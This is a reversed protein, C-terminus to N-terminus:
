LRLMYAQLADDIDLASSKSAVDIRLLEEVARRLQPLSIRRMITQSKGIVYPSIGSVQAIDAASRTGAAAVLSLVHLQWAMMAMIQQPEVKQARQDQYLSLARQTQGAFIADILDFIKSQPAEDVLLMISEKSIDPNYAILKELERWLQQQNSGVRQVLLRANTTTLQAHQDKAASALWGALGAEDLMKHEYFDTRKQLFKAYATRKDLKTEYIIIDTIESVDALLAEYREMFEKNSSPNRLVVLKKAALFPLSEIAERIKDYEVEEGDLRELAMDGYQQVYEDVLQRLQKHLLFSNAGCLSRIM